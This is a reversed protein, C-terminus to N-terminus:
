NETNSLVARKGQTPLLGLEEREDPLMERLCGCSRTTGRRLVGGCALHYNGCDCKCLWQGRDHGKQVYEVAVLRGFRQGTIDIFRPSLAGGRPTRNGRAM